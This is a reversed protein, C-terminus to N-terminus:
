LFMWFLMFFTHLYSCAGWQLIWLVVIVNYLYRDVGGSCAGPASCAESIYGAVLMMVAWVLSSLSMGLTDFIIFFFFESISLMFEIWSWAYFLSSIPFYWMTVKSFIRDRWTNSKASKTMEVCRAHIDIWFQTVLLASAIFLVPPLNLALNKAFFLGERRFFAM